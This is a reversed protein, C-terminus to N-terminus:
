FITQFKTSKKKVFICVYFYTFRFTLQQVRDPPIGMTDHIINFGTPTVTGERVTQPVLYFDYRLLIFISSFNM